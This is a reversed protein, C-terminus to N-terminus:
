GKRRKGVMGAAAGPPIEYQALAAFLKSVVPRLAGVDVGLDEAAERVADDLVKQTAPSPTFDPPPPSGMGLQWPEVGYDHALAELLETSLRGSDYLTVLVTSKMPLGPECDGDEWRAVTRPVVGCAQAIAGRRVGTEELAAVLLEAFTPPKPAEKSSSMPTTVRTMRSTVRTLKSNAASAGIAVNAPFITARSPAFASRPPRITASPTRLAPGASFLAANSRAPASNSAWRASNPAALSAHKRAITM